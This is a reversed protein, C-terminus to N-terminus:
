ARPRIHQASTPQLVLAPFWAVIGNWVLVADNWGEDGARLLSGGVRAELEDVRRPTLSVRGGDLGAIDRATTTM